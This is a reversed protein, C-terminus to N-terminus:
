PESLAKLEDIEGQLKQLRRKRIFYFAVFWIVLLTFFPVTNLLLRPTELAQILGPMILLAMGVFCFPLGSRRWVHRNYDRKKELERRYFELSTSLAAEDALKAPWIWKYTAYIFYLVWLSLVGLGIRSVLEHMKAFTLAFAVCLFLGIVFSLAVTLRGKTQFKQMRRRIEDLSMKIPETPQDQWIKQPDNMPSGGEHFWRKLINKIRHIKMAVNAASLGTIEATASADMGELYSIIIQRDVPKLQQILMSLRELARVAALEPRDHSPM